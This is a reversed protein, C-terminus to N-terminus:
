SLEVNVKVNITGKKRIEYVNLKDKSPDVDYFQEVNFFAQEITDFITIEADDELSYANPVVAYFVKDAPPKVTKKTAM